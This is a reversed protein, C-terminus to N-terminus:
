RGSGLSKKEAELAMIRENMQIMLLTMEEIKKLLATETQAVDIGEKSVQAATPMGPLHGHEQIYAHIEELSMLRYGAEFVYDPWDAQLEVRVKETLIGKAVYLSYDTGPMDGTGIAVKGDEFTMIATPSTSTEMIHGKGDGDMTFGYSGEGGMLWLSATNSSTSSLQLRTDTGSIFKAREINNTKIVLPKADLTGLWQDTTTIWNGSTSWWDGPTGALTHNNPFIQLLGNPLIKLLGGDTSTM